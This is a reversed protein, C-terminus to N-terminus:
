RHRLARHAQLLGHAPGRQAGARADDGVSAGAGGGGAGGCASLWVTVLKDLRGSERGLRSNPITLVTHATSRMTSVCIKRGDVWVGTLGEERGGEVGLRAIARIVVEELARLYWHLDARYDQLQIIPYM